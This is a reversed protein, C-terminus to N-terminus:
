SIAGNSAAGDRRDALFTEVDGAAIPRSILYGQAARCGGAALDSFQEETEVGEALTEMGLTAGLTIIADVLARSRGSDDGRVFSQDIKIKSFPFSNLYSLSSYGTGFDDMAISVGMARIASLHELAGEADDILIGETIEIELRAPDLGSRELAERVSEVFRESEFQAPSVNVAVSLEDPWNMAELCASQLVWDGIAHIEGIEEALPIFDAPSILGRDPHNWRILAEFGTVVGEPLRVQPQYVLELERLGLARRLALELERREMARTELSPEFRRWAGRGAHKADYLALDAHRVLDALATVRGDLVSVGVSAGINVQQGDVLFPRGTLEVLRAATTAAIGEPPEGRLLVVFEDGGLRVLTDEARTARRMRRSVLQLLKDGAGHGLTDNVQKFRDLDILMLAVSGVADREDALGALAEDLARRNGLGTLPDLRTDDNEAAPVGAADVVVLREGNERASVQLTVAREDEAAKLPLSFAEPAALREALPVASEGFRRLSVEVISVDRGEGARLGFLALFAPNATRVRGGGELVAIACSTELPALTMDAGAPPVAADNAADALSPDSTREPVHTM